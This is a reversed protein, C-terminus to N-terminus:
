LAVIGTSFMQDRATYPSSSLEVSRSAESRCREKREDDMSIQRSRCENSCFAKEGRYMYIDKGDLNKRCLHCSSLFDSTPYSQEDEEILTQTPPIRRVGGVGVNNNNNNNINYYGHTLIGGEGGDYYVKTITKNNPVHYTVFTYDESSGAPIENVGKQFGRQNTVPIPVSRNSNSTCVHGQEESSSKDLAVVIGLGVGGLDYSKLGKPSQMKLNMMDFPSRPSGLADFLVAARGGSVLLESIKGILPQPRKGLM